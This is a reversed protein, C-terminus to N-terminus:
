SCGAGAGPANSSATRASSRAHQPWLSTPPAARRPKLVPESLGHDGDVQMSGSETDPAGLGLVRRCRVSPKCIRSDRGEERQWALAVERKFADLRVQRSDCASSPDNVNVLTVTPIAAKRTGCSASNRVVDCAGIATSSRPQNRLEPRLTAVIPLTIPTTEANIAARRCHRSRSVAVNPSPTRIAITAVRNVM